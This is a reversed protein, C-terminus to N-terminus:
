IVLKISRELFLVTEAYELVIQNEELRTSVGYKKIPRPGAWSTWKEVRARM